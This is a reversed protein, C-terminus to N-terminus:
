AHRGMCHGCTPCHPHDAKGCDPGPNWTCRECNACPGDPEDDGEDTATHRCIACYRREPGWRDAPSTRWQHEGRYQCVCNSPTALLPDMGIIGALKRLAEVQENDLFGSGFYPSMTAVDLVARLDGKRVTVTEDEDYTRAFDEQDHVSFTDSM